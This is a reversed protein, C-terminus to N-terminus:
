GVLIIESDLDKDIIQMIYYTVFKKTRFTIVCLSVRRELFELYERSERYAWQGQNEQHDERELSGKRDRWVKPDWNM